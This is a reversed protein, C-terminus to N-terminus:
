GVIASKLGAGWGGGSSLMSNMRWRMALAM